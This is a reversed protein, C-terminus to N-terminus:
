NWIYTEHAALEFVTVASAKSVLTWVQSMVVESGSNTTLGNTIEWAAHKMELTVIQGDFTEAIEGGGFKYGPVM